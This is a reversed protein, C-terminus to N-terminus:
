MGHMEVHSVHGELALVIANMKVLFAKVAAQADERSTLLESLSQIGSPDGSEPVATVVALFEGPAVQEVRGWVRFRTM